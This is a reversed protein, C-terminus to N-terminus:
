KFSDVVKQFDEDSFELPSSLSLNKYQGGSNLEKFKRLGAVKVVVSLQRIVDDRWKESWEPDGLNTGRRIFSLLKRRSPVAATMGCGEALVDCSGIDVVIEIRTSLSHDPYSRSSVFSVNTVAFVGVHNSNFVEIDVTVCCM